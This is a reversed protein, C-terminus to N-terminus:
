AVECVHIFYRPRRVPEDPTMTLGALEMIPGLARVPLGLRQAADMVRIRPNRRVMRRLAEAAEQRSLRVVRIGQAAYEIANQDMFDDDPLEYAAWAHLASCGEGGTCEPPPIVSGDEGTRATQNYQVDCAPCHIIRAPVKAVM